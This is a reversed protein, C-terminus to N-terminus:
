SAAYPNRPQSAAAAASASRHPLQGTLIVIATILLIGGVITEGLSILSFISLMPNGGIGHMTAGTVGALMPTLISLGRSIAPWGVLAVALWLFGSMRSRSYARLLLVLM